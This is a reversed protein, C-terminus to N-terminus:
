LRQGKGRHLDRTLHKTLNPEEVVSLHLPQVGLGHLLGDPLHLVLEHVLLARRGASDHHPPAFKGFIAMTMGLLWVFQVAYGTTFFPKSYYTCKM